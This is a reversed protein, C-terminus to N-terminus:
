KLIDLNKLKMATIICMLSPLLLTNIPLLLTNENVTFGSLFFLNLIIDKLFSEDHGYGLVVCEGINYRQEDKVIGKSQCLLSTDELDVKKM